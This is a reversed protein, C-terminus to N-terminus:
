PVDRRRFSLASPVAAALLIVGFYVTGETRSISFTCGEDGTLNGEVESAQVDACGAGYDQIEVGDLAVALFNNQPLYNQNGEFGILSILLPAMVSVAFLIGLTAVTSRFLMTAAYGGLGAFAAVLAGVLAMEYADTIVANSPGIGRQEAVLWLGSWFAALVAGALVFGAGLVAIGKATWIRLRRPEFLLQNSMSGSSWDHGVYTAGLLMTLVALVAIVGVGAEEQQDRLDLPERYLFWDLQPLVFSECTARVDETDQVGYRRPRELCRELEREVYPQALESDVNAQADAVEADSFPRTNYVSTGMIVLPVLVAAAVLLLVARRWRLRTLEVRILAIM